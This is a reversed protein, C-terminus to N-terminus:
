LLEWESDGNDNDPPKKSDNTILSPGSSEKRQPNNTEGHWIPLQEYEPKKALRMRSALADRIKKKYSRPRGAERPVYPLEISDVVICSEELKANQYKDTTESALEVIDDNKELESYDDNSKDTTAENFQEPENWSTKKLSAIDFTAPTIAGNSEASIDNSTYPVNEVIRGECSVGPPMLSSHSANPSDVARGIDVVATNCSTGTNRHSNCIQLDFSMPSHTDVHIDCAKAHGEELLSDFSSARSTKKEASSVLELLDPLPSNEILSGTNTPAHSKKFMENNGNDELPSILDVETVHNTSLSSLPYNKNQVRSRLSAQSSIKGPTIVESMEIPLPRENSPSKGTGAKSKTYAGVEDIKEQYVSKVVPSKIESVKYYNENGLDEKSSQKPKEYTGIAANNELPLGSGENDKHDLSSPPLLDQLVEAYFKKVSSGVTQVQTEVYKATEQCVVDEVELCMAEFKQYVNGM